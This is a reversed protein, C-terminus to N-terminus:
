CCSQHDSGSGPHRTLMGENDSINSTTLFTWTSVSHERQAVAVLGTTRRAETGSFVGQTICIGAQAISSKHLVQTYSIGRPQRERATGALRPSGNLDVSDTHVVQRGIDVM